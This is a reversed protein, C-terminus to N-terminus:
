KMSFPVPRTQYYYKIPIHEREYAAKVTCCSACDYELGIGTTCLRQGKSAKRFIFVGHSSGDKCRGRKNM